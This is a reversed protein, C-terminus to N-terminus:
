DKTFVSFDPTLSAFHSLDLCNNVPRHPQELLLNKIKNRGSIGLQGIQLSILQKQTTLTIFLILILVQVESELKVRSILFFGDIM